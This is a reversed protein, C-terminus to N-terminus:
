GSSPHPALMDASCRPPTPHGRPTPEGGSPAGGPMTSTDRKRASKNKYQASSPTYISMAYYIIYLHIYDNCSHASCQRWFRSLRRSNYTRRLEWGTRQWLFGLHRRSGVIEEQCDQHLVVQDAETQLNTYPLKNLTMLLTLALSHVYIQNDEFVQYQHWSRGNRFDTSEIARQCSNDHKWKDDATSGHRWFNFFITNLSHRRSLPWPHCDLQWHHWRVNEGFCVERSLRRPGFIRPNSACLGHYRSNIVGTVLTLCIYLVSVRLLISFSSLKWM